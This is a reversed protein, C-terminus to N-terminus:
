KNHDPLYVLRNPTDPKLGILYGQSADHLFATKLDDTLLHRQTQEYQVLATSVISAAVGTGSVLSRGDPYSPDNRKWISKVDAGPAYIDVCKGYNANKFPHDDMNSAAVTITYPSDAPSFNCADQNSDGAQVVIPVQYNEVILKIQDDLIQSKGQATFNIDIVGSNQPVYGEAYSLAWVLDSVRAQNDLGSGRISFNFININKSVGFTNSGAVGAHATGIGNADGDSNFPASVRGSFENSDPDIGTDVQAVKLCSADWSIHANKDLPLSHQNIRDLAWSYDGDQKSIAHAATQSKIVWNNEVRKVEPETNIENATSETVQLMFGCLGDTKPLRGIGNDILYKRRLKTEFQNMFVNSDKSECRIPDLQVLYHGTAQTLSHWHTTTKALSVGSVICCSIALSCISLKRM